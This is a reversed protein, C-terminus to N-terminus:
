GPETQQMIGLGPLAERFSSAKVSLDVWEGEGGGTLKDGHDQFHAYTFLVSPVLELKTSPPRRGYIETFRPAIWYACWLLPDAGAGQDIRAAAGLWSVLNAEYLERAAQSLPILPEEGRFPLRHRALGIAAELPRPWIQNCVAAVLLISSAAFIAQNVAQHNSIVDPDASGIIGILSLVIGSFNAGTLRM